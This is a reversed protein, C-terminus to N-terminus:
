RHYLRIDFCSSSPFPLGSPHFTCLGALLIFHAFAQWFSSIRLPRGSPHFTCLGALLIFYSFAQWFRGFPALARARFTAMSVMPSFVEQPPPAAWTCLPLCRLLPAPLPSTTLVQHCWPRLRQAMRCWVCLMLVQAPNNDHSLKSPGLQPMAKSHQKVAPWWSASM